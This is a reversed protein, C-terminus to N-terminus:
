IDMIDKAKDKIIKIVKYIKAKIILLYKIYYFGKLNANSNTKIGYLYYWILLVMAFLMYYLWSLLGLYIDM